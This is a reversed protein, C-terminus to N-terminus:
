ALIERYIELLVQAQSDWSYQHSVDRAKHAMVVRREEDFFARIAAALGAVDGSSYSALFGAEGFEGMIGPLDTTIVPLGAAAYDFLKTLLSHRYNPYNRVPNIGVHFEPLRRSLENVPVWGHYHLWDSYDPSHILHELEKEGMQGFIDLTVNESESWVQAVAAVMDTIGRVTSLAGIYILRLPDNDSRLAPEPPDQRLPYNQVLSRRKSSFAYQYCREALIVRDFVPLSMLELLRVIWGLLGRVPAPLWKKGRFSVLYDEHMDYIVKKGLLKAVWSVPILEPDHFHFVEYDKKLVEVLIKGIRRLRTFPAGVFPIRSNVRPMRHIHVNEPVVAPGIDNNVAVLRIDGIEALSLTEKYYVRIDNWVHVSSAILIKPREM